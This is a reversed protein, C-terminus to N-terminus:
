RRVGTAILTYSQRHCFHEPLPLSFLKERIEEPTVEDVAAAPPCQMLGFKRLAAQLNGLIFHRFDDKPLTGSVIEIDAFGAQQMRRGLEEPSFGYEYLGEPWRGTLKWMWMALRYSFCHRNPVAIFTMGGEKLVAYHADFIAQRPRGSFHENVGLSMSLDFRGKLSVPLSLANETMTEVPVNCAAYLQRAAALAEGSSDLLAVRGGLMAAFLATKGLGAGIEIAGFEKPLASIGEKLHQVVLSGAMGDLRRLEDALVIEPVDWAQHSGVAERKM